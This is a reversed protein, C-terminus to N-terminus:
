NVNKALTLWNEVSLEQPRIEPAIGSELLIDEVKSQDIHLGAALSNKLQKRRGSFGFKALRFAKKSIVTEEQQIKEVRLVASDVAPIPDFDKRGVMFSIAPRGFYQVSLSLMSMEGPEATIREAVEKQILTCMMTPRPPRTLFQRFVMSTASYPLNAILKYKRDTLYKDLRVRFVDGELLTLRSEGNFTTRLFQALRSDLEVAIVSAGRALLARTLVGFGPGIELVTDKPGVESEEVMREVVSENLLFHQGAERSPRLGVQRVLKAIAERNM